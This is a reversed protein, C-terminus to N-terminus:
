AADQQQPASIAFQQFMPNEVLARLRQVEPNPVMSLLQQVEPNQVMGLLWQVEPNQALRMLSGMDGAGVAQEIEPLQPHTAMTLLQEIRDMGLM